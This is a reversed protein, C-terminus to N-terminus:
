NAVIPGLLEVLSRRGDKGGSSVVKQVGRVFGGLDGGSPGVLLMKGCGQVGCKLFSFKSSVRAVGAGRRSLALKERGLFSIMLPGVRRLTRGDENAVVFSSTCHMLRMGPCCVAGEGM